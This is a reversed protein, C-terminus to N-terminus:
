FVSRLTNGFGRQEVPAQPTLVPDRELFPVFDLWPRLSLSSPQRQDKIEVRATTEAATSTARVTQAPSPASLVLLWAAVVVGLQVM